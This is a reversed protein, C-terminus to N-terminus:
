IVVVRKDTKIIKFVKENFSIKYLIFKFSIKSLASTFFTPATFKSKTNLVTHRKTVVFKNKSFAACLPFIMNAAFEM